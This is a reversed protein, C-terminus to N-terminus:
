HNNEIASVKKKLLDIEKTQEILYLTLEEIKEMMKKQTDGVMLGNTQIDLASPIGPLHKNEVIYKEVENLPTLKYKEEFVYDAWGTEVVIEKSRIDGNVSLKYTPNDTNIGVNGTAEAIFIRSFGNSFIRMNTPSFTGIGASTGGMRTALINGGEGLHSIGYSNNLTEVTFRGFAGTANSGVVVEGGPYIQVRGLTGATLRFAHNTSTGLGASVGGIGEGVIISDKGNSQGIHTWGNTNIPTLITLKTLPNSIGIGVNGTNNNSINTSSTSWYNPGSGGGTVLETWGSSNYFWFSSTENDFVLLGAGPNLIGTRQATAMRPILMGKSISQVDLMASPDPISGDEKIGVSQSYAALSKLFILSIFILVKM